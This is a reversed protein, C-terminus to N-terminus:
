FQQLKKIIASEYLMEYQSVIANLSFCEIIRARAAKGLAERGDSGLKILEQWANALAEPNKPPVVRGTDGVILASDGIDTTVCPVGCSMAEGLVLPFAEGYASASTLIDLAAMLHPSDRREGLLHVQNVIGLDKILTHLIENEKNVGTGALVFQVDPHDKLLLTSARLFNTHDKMPHFRCILGILLCNEPLNLESRILSRGQSSPIFIDTDFGNPIVCNNDKCYGLAEHQLKSIKSVYITQTVFNSFYSLLQIVFSTMKSRYALSYISSHISWLIPIKRGLSFWALQAALNGHYMWGQIIDPQINRVLRLLQWIVNPTPVGGVKMEITYVPIGLTEIPACLPEREMLSIVIPTFKEREMASLLKYLMMEAGGIELGTTIFLIKM